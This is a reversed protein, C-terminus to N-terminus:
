TYSRQLLRSKIILFLGIAVEIVEVTIFSLQANSVEGVMVTGILRFCVFSSIITVALIASYVWTKSFYFILSIAVGIGVMLSCYILIFAVKGDLDVASLGIRDLKSDIDALANIGSVMFYVAMIVTYVKGLIDVKM